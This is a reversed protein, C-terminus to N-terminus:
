EGKFKCKELSTLIKEKDAKSLNDNTEIILKFNAVTSNFNEKEVEFLLKFGSSLTELMKYCDDLKKHILDIEKIIEINDM